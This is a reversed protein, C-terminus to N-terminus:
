ASVGSDRLSLLGSLPYQEGEIKPVV